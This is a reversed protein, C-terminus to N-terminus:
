PKMVFNSLEPVQWNAWDTYLCKTIIKKFEGFDIPKIIYTDAGQRRAKSIANEDSSTSLIAVPIGKYKDNAKIEELTQFGNKIPMNLDLFIIDANVPKEDLLNLLVEGNKATYVEVQDPIEKLAETFLFIDDSDDDALFIHRIAM